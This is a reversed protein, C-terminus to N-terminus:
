VGANSIELAIHLHQQVTPLFQQALSRLQADTGSDAEAQFAQILMTLDQLQANLYARDFAPGQMAQLQRYLVQHRGDMDTPMAMGKGQALAILQQNIPTHDAVIKMAFGRVLPNNAQAVALQGFGVEALELAGASDVFTVDAKTPEAASPATADGPATSHCAALAPLVAGLILAVHFSRTM